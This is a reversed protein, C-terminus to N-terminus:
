SASINEIEFYYKPFSGEKVIFVDDGDSDWDYAGADVNKNHINNDDTEEAFWGGDIVLRDRLHIYREVHQAYPRLDKEYRLVWEMQGCSESLIWVQLQCDYVFGLHVGDKSRGLYPKSHEISSSTEIVQDEISAPMKIVQYTDNSLSFGRSIASSSATATSGPGCWCDRVGEITEVPLLLFGLMGDVMPFTSSPRTFHHPRHYDVYNLFIGRVSHPLLHPLLLARALSRPPLLRLVGALADDPLAGITEM